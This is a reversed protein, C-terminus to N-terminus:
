ARSRRLAGAWYGSRQGLQRLFDFGRTTLDSAPAGDRSPRRPVAALARLLPAIARAEQPWAPPIVDRHAACLTAFGYGYRYQQVLFSPVTSRYRHFVAADPAYVVRFAPDRGLRWCLDADEWGGGPFREDFLGAQLLLTRRFAVNPTMAYPRSSQQLAREQSHSRRRAMYREAATRPPYPIIGGAVAGVSADDFRSILRRLWQSTVVCDPDTFAVIDGRSARIGANRAVCINRRAAPLHRAGFETALEVAGRVTSVVIVERDAAPYDVTAISALCDRLGDGDLAAVVISVSPRGM